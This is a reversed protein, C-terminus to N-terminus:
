ALVTHTDADLVQQVDTSIDRSLQESLHGHSHEAENSVGICEIWGEEHLKVGVVAILSKLVDQFPSIFSCSDFHTSLSSM